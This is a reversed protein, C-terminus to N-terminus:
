AHGNRRKAEELAAKLRKEKESKDNTEESQGTQKTLQEVEKRDQGLVNIRRTFEEILELERAKMESLLEEVRLEPAGDVKARAIDADVEATNLDIELRNFITLLAKSSEHLLDLTESARKLIDADSDSENLDRIAAVIRGRENQEISAAGVVAEEAVKVLDGLREAKQNKARHEAQKEAQEFHKEVAKKKAINGSTFLAQIETKKYRRDREAIALVVQEHTEEIRKHLDLLLELCAKTTPADGGQLSKVGSVSTQLLTEAEIYLDTLAAIEGQVNNYTKDFVSEVYSKCEDQDEQTKLKDEKAKFEAELDKLEAYSIEDSNFLDDNHAENEEARKRRADVNKRRTLSASKEWSDKLDIADQSSLKIATAEKRIKEILPSPPAPQVQGQLLSKLADVPNIKPQLSVSVPRNSGFNLPAVVPVGGTDDSSSPTHGTRSNSTDRTGFFIEDHVEGSAGSSNNGPLACSATATRQALSSSADSSMIPPVYAKYQPQAQEESPSQVPTSDDHVSSTPTLIAASQSSSVFPAHTPVIHGAPVTPRTILPRGGPSYMYEDDDDTEQPLTVNLDQAVSQSSRVRVPQILQTPNEPEVPALNPAADYFEIGRIASEAKMFARFTKIKDDLLPENAEGRLMVIYRELSGAYWPDLDPIMDSATPKPPQPVEKTREYDFQTRLDDLEKRLSEITSEHDKIADEKGEVDEKIREITLASEKKLADADLKAQEAAAKMAEVQQDLQQSQKDALVRAAQEDTKLQQITALFGANKAEIEAQVKRMDEKSETRLRWLEEDKSQLKAALDNDGKSGQAHQASGDKSSLGFTSGVDSFFRTTGPRNQRQTEMSSIAISSAPIQIPAVQVPATTQSDDAVSAHGELQARRSANGTQNSSNIGDWLVEGM